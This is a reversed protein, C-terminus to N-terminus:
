FFFQDHRDNWEGSAQCFGYLAKSLLNICDKSNEMEFREPRCVCLKEILEASIFVKKMDRIKQKVSFHATVAIILQVTVYRAM